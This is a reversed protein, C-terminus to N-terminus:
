EAVQRAAKSQQERSRLFGAYAGALCCPLLLIEAAAVAGANAEFGSFFTLRFAVWLGIGGIALILGALIGAWTRRLPLLWLIITGAAAPILCAGLLYAHARWEFWSALALDHRFLLRMGPFIVGVFLYPIAVWIGFARSKLAMKITWDATSSRYDRAVADM